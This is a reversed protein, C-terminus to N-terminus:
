VVSKRDETMSIDGLVPLASTLHDFAALGPITTHVGQNSLVWKLAAQPNVPKTRERDLFGGAMTKMAVVGLGAKSARLIAEGVQQRHEQTFNYSTLVVDYEGNDIMYDIVLHENRHTSIGSFKIKGEQKLKKLLELLPKYNTLEETSVDHVYLIDVYDMQLRKLSTNFNEEFSAATTAASPLGARDVGAPKVKTTMIFSDRPYDKLVNGLMEENRGNQYGNATDFFNIGNEMCATVLGPNDARMVGMSVVPVKLGTKGLTRYIIKKDEGAPLSVASVTGAVMLGAAGAAGSKLFRRRNFQDM